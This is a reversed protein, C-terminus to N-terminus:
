NLSALQLVRFRDVPEEGVPAGDDDTEPAPSDVYALANGGQSRALSRAMAIREGQTRGSVEVISLESADEPPQSWFARVEADTRLPLVAGEGAQFDPVYAIVYREVSYSQIEVFPAAGFYGQPLFTPRVFASGISANSRLHTQSALYIVANGGRARAERAAKEVRRKGPHGAGRPNGFGATL